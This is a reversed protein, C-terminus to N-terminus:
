AFWDDVFQPTKATRTNMLNNKLQALQEAARQLHIAASKDDDDDTYALHLAYEVLVQHHEAPFNPVNNATNALDASATMFEIVYTTSADPLPVLQLTSGLWRYWRPTGRETIDPVEYRHQTRNAVPELVFGNTTDLVMSVQFVGVTGLDAATINGDGASTTVTASVEKWPWWPCDAQVWAYADNLYSLWNADTYIANSPDTFRSKLRAIM